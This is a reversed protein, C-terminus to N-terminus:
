PVVPGTNGSGTQVGSHDHDLYKKGNIWLEGTLEIKGTNKDIKISLTGDMTQILVGNPGQVVRMDPDTPATYSKKGFPEFVLTSLNAALDLKATGSGLESLGGLRADAAWVTGPDGVQLPLYDYASSAVPVVVNPLTFPAANVEFKVEVIWGTVKVISCPLSKGTLQIGDLVKREAFQNMARQFPTKQALNM